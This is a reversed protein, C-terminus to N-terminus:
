SDCLEGEGESLSMNLEDKRVLVYLGSDRVGM